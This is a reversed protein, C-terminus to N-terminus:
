RASNMAINSLEDARGNKDRPIHEYSIKSIKSAISLAESHLIKMKPDRVKYVGTMQRLVLQSDGYVALHKVGM